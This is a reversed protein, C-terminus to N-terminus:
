LCQEWVCTVAHYAGFEFAKANHLIRMGNQSQLIKNFHRAPKITCPALECPIARSHEKHRARLSGNKKRRLRINTGQHMLSITNHVILRISASSADYMVITKEIWYKIANSNLLRPGPVGDYNLPIGIICHTGDIAWRHRCIWSSKYTAIGTSNNRAKLHVDDHLRVSLWLIMRPCGFTSTALPRRSPCGHCPALLCIHRDLYSLVSQPLM